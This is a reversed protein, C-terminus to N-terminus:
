LKLRPCHELTPSCLKPGNISRCQHDVSHSVCKSRFFDKGEYVLLPERHVKPKKGEFRVEDHRMLLSRAEILEKASHVCSKVSDFDESLDSQLAAELFHTIKKDLDIIFDEIKM